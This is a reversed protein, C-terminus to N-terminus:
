LQQQMHMDTAIHACVATANADADIAQATHMLLYQMDCVLQQPAHIIQKQLM